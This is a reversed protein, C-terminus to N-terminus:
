QISILCVDCNVLLLEVPDEMSSDNLTPPFLHCLFSILVLLPSVTILCVDCVCSDEALVETGSHELVAM